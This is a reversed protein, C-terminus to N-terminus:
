QDHCITLLLLCFYLAVDVFASVGLAGDFSVPEDSGDDEQETVEETVEETPEATPEDTVPEETPECIGRLECGALCGAEDFSVLITSPWNSSSTLVKIFGLVYDNSIGDVGSATNQRVTQVYPMFSFGGMMGTVRSARWRDMTCYDSCSSIAVDQLDTDRDCTCGIYCSLRADNSTTFLYNDECNQTCAAKQSLSDFIGPYNIADYGGGDTIYYRYARIGSWQAYQKGESYAVAFDTVSHFAKAGYNSSLLVVFLITCTNSIMM